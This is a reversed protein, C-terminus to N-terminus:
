NIRGGQLTNINSVNLYCTIYLQWVLLCLFPTIFYMIGAVFLFWNDTLVVHLCIFLSLYISTSQFCHTIGYKFIYKIGRLLELTHGFIEQVVITQAYVGFAKSCLRIYSVAFLLLMCTLRGM